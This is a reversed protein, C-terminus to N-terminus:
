RREITVNDYHAAIRPAPVNFGNVGVLVALFPFVSAAIPTFSLAYSNPGAQGTITGNIPDVDLKIHLWTDTPTPAGPRDNTKWVQGNVLDTTLNTYNPGFVLYSATSSDRSRYEISLLSANSDNAQWDIGEVNVDLEVVVRRWDGDYRKAVLATIKPSGDPRRPLSSFLARPASLARVNSPMLVGLPDVAQTSWGALPDAGDFDACFINPSTFPACFSVSPAADSPAADDPAADDPAADGPAADGPAADSAVGADAVPGGEGSV